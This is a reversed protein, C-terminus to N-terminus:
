ALIPTADTTKPMKFITCREYALYITFDAMKSFETTPVASHLSRLFM